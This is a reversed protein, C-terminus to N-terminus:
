RVDSNVKEGAKERERVKARLAELERKQAKAEEVQQKLALVAPDQDWPLAAKSKEDLLDGKKDIYLKDMEQLTTKLLQVERPIIDVGLARLLQLEVYYKSVLKLRNYTIPDKTTFSIPSFEKDYIQKRLGCGGDRDDAAPCRSRYPCMSCKIGFYQGAESDLSTSGRPRAVRLSDDWENGM